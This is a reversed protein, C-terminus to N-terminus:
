GTGLRPERPNSTTESPSGPEAKICGKARLIAGLTLLLPPCVLIALHIGHLPLGQLMETEFPPFDLAALVESWSSTGLTLISSTTLTAFYLLSGWWAWRRRGLIGWTLGVLCLIALDILAIGLLENVWRGFLPFVGNFLILIHWAAVYFAFLVGLVLIPEPLRGIWSSAPDRDELTLRVDRSRYFRILLGPLAPYAVAILAVAAVAMPVSLPKASLLAFLFALGLPAGMVVWFWLLALALPRAWRRLRIHGYGLPVFVAAISYYGVIQAAINGFMFSGFGFGEYHFRGGESFLTFCYMEVPGALAAIGGILMLLGGIIVLLLARDRHETEATQADVARAKVSHPWACRLSPCGAGTLLQLDAEPTRHEM